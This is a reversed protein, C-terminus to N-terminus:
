PQVRIQKESELDAAILAKLRPWVRDLFAGAQASHSRRAMEWADGIETERMWDAFGDQSDFDAETLKEQEANVKELDWGGHKGQEAIYDAIAKHTKTGDYTQHPDFKGLLYGNDCDLLFVRLDRGDLGGASWRYSYDGYDSLVAFCGTAEDLFLVAWGENWGSPSRANPVAYRWVRSM